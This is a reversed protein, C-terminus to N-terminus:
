GAVDPGVYTRLKNRKQGGTMGGTRYERTANALGDM